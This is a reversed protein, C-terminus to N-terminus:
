KPSKSVVLERLNAYSSKHKELTQLTLALRLTNSQAIAYGGPNSISPRSVREFFDKEEKLASDLNGLDYLRKIEKFHGFILNYTRKEKIYGLGLDTKSSTVFRNIEYLFNVEHVIVRDITQSYDPLSTVSFISALTAENLKAENQILDQIAHIAISEVAISTLLGIFNRHEINKSVHVLDILPLIKANSSNEDFSYVADIALLRALLRFLRLEVEADEAFSDLDADIPGGLALDSLLPAVDSLSELIRDLESKM